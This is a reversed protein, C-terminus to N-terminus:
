EAESGEGKSGLMCSTLQLHSCTSHFICLYLLSGTSKYLVFLQKRMHELTLVWEQLVRYCHPKVCQQCHSCVVKSDIDHVSVSLIYILPDRLEM